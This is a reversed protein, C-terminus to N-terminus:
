DEESDPGSSTSDLSREIVLTAIRNGENHSSIAERVNDYTASDCKYIIRRLKVNQPNGAGVPTGSTVQKFANFGEPNLVVSRYGTVARLLDGKRLVRHASYGPLTDDVVVRTKQYWMGAVSGGGDEQVSILLGLPLGLDMTIMESNSLKPTIKLTTKGAPEGDPGLNIEIEIAASSSLGAMRPTGLRSAQMPPLAPRLNANEFRALLLAATFILVM